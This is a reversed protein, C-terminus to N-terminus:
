EELPNPTLTFGIMVDAPEIHRASNITGVATRLKTDRSVCHTAIEVLRNGRHTVVLGDILALSIQNIHHATLMPDPHTRPPLM